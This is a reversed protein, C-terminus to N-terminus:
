FYYGLTLSGREASRQYRTGLYTAQWDLRAEWNRELAYNLGLTLVHTQLRKINDSNYRGEFSMLGKLPGINLGVIAEYSLLHDVKKSLEERLGLLLSAIWHQEGGFSLGMKGNAVVRQCNRCDLDELTDEVWVGARWSLQSHYWKWPHLSVVDIINFEQLRAKKSDPSYNGKVGLFRFQSFRELGLDRALLDHYGSQYQLIIGAENQKIGGIAFKQAEHAEDPRNKFPAFSLKKPREGEKAISKLNKALFNKRKFKEKKQFKELDLMSALVTKERLSLGTIDESALAQKVRGEEKENLQSVLKKVKRM